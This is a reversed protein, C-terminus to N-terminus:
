KKKFDLEYGNQNFHFGDPQDFTVKIGAGSFEFETESIPAFVFASQGTAQGYLSGDEVYIKINLPFGPAAYTGEYSKLIAADVEAYDWTPFEYDDGNLITLVGVLIDNYGMNLGNVFLVVSLDDKKWYSANSNFGDVGGNHCVGMEGGYPVPYLGFGYNDVYEQMKEVSATSIIKGNFLAHWVKALDGASSTIAGAAGVIMGPTHQEIATWDGDLAMFSKVENKSVDVKDLWGMSLLGLPETIEDQVLTFYDRDYLEELIFGMLIYGTNCYSFKEDPEFDVPIESIMEVLKTKDEAASMMTVYMGNDTFNNLGSRHRLMHEITIKDANPIEPFYKYLKTDLTIKGEEVAKMILTATFTKTISGIRYRSETDPHVQKGDQIDKLGVAKEYITEGGQNIAVALSAKDNDFFYQLLEDMKAQDFDHQACLSSLCIVIATLTSIIKM